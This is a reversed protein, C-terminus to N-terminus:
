CFEQLSLEFNIKLTPKTLFVCFGVKSMRRFYHICYFIKEVIELMKCFEIQHYFFSCVKNECYLTNSRKDDFLFKRAM